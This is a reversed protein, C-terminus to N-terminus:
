VGGLWTSGHGKAWWRVARGTTPGAGSAVGVVDAFRPARMLLQVIVRPPDIARAAENLVGVAHAAHGLVLQSGGDDRVVHYRMAAVARQEDIGVVVLTKALQVM